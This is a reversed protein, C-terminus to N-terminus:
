QKDQRLAMKRPACTLTNLHSFSSCFMCTNQAAILAHLSCASQYLSCTKASEFPHTGRPQWPRWHIGAFCHLVHWGGEAAWSPGDRHQQQRQQQRQQQCGGKTCSRTWEGVGAPTRFMCCIKPTSMVFGFASPEGGHMGYLAPIQWRLAMGQRRWAVAHVM